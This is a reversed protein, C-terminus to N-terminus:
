VANQILELIHEQSTSMHYSHHADTNQPINFLGVGDCTQENALELYILLHGISQPIADCLLRLWFLLLRRCWYHGFLWHIHPLVSSSPLIMKAAHLAPRAVALSCQFGDITDHQLGAMEDLFANVNLTDEDTIFGSPQGFSPATKRWPCIPTRWQFRILMMLVTRDNFSFRHM